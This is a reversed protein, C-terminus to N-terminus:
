SQRVAQQASFVLDVLVLLTALDIRDSRSFPKQEGRLSRSSYVATASSPFSLVSPSIALSFFLSVAVEFGTMSVFASSRDSSVITEGATFVDGGIRRSSLEPPTTRSIWVDSRDSEAASFGFVLASINEGVSFSGRSPRDILM